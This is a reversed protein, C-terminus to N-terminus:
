GLDGWRNQLVALVAIGATDARLIRPGFRVVAFGAHRARQVEQESWGGEPGIAVLVSRPAARGDIAERLDATAREWLLIRLEPPSPEAIM